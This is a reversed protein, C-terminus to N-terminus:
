RIWTSHLQEFLTRVSEGSRPGGVNFCWFRELDHRSADMQFLGQSKHEAIVWNAIIEYTLANHFGLPQSRSLEFLDKRVRTLPYGALTSFQRAPEHSSAAEAALIAPRQDEPLASVASLALLTAAKHHGHTEANPLLTFVFDYKESTLRKSIFNRLLAHDWAKLAESPDLTYGSDKQDLFHHQRVGLIRGAALTEQKRIQPLHARGVSEDTLHFGYLAEALISYRYGGEGNSIVVQDLVGGLERVIRYATVAFTYEDDPHAVVALVRPVGQGEARRAAVAGTALLAFSRRSLGGDNSQIVNHDSARRM